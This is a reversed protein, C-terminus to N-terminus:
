FQNKVLEHLYANSTCIKGMTIKEMRRNIEKSKEINFKSPDKLNNLEMNMYSYLQNQKAVSVIQNVKPYYEKLAPASQIVKEFRSVALEYNGKNRSKIANKMDIILNRAKREVSNLRKRNKM